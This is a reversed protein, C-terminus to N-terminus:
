FPETEELASMMDTNDVETDSALPTIGFDIGNLGIPSM